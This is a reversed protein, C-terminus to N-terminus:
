FYYIHTEYRCIKSVVSMSVGYKEAIEKLGMGACRLKRMEFAQQRAAKVNNKKDVQEKTM